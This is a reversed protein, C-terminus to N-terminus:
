HPRKRCCSRPDQDHSPESQEFSRGGAEVVHVGALLASRTKFITRPRLAADAGPGSRGAREAVLDPSWEPLAIMDIVVLFAEPTPASARRRPFGHVRAGPKVTKRERCRM